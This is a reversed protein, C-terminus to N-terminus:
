VTAALESTENAAVARSVRPSCAPSAASMANEAAEARSPLWCM